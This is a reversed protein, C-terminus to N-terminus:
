YYACQERHCEPPATHHAGPQPRAQGHILHGRRRGRGVGGWGAGGWGAGGWGAGGRGVGGRGAGGRGVGGWGVGGRGAGGWGAWGVGGWGMGTSRICHAGRKSMSIWTSIIDREDVRGVEGAKKRGLKPWDQAGKLCAKGEQPTTTHWDRRRLQLTRPQV